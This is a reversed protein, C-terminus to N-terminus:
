GRKLTEQAWLLTIHVQQKIHGYKYDLEWHPSFEMKFDLGETISFSLDKPLNAHISVSKEGTESTSDKFSLGTITSWENLNNFGLRIMTFSPNETLREIIVDSIGCLM